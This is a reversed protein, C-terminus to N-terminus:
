HKLTNLTIASPSQGRRSAPPWISISVVRQVPLQLFAVQDIARSDLLADAAVADVDRPGPLKDFNLERRQRGNAIFDGCKHVLMAHEQHFRNDCALREYFQAARASTDELPPLAGLAALQKIQEFLQDVERAYKGMAPKNEFHQQDFDLLPSIRAMTATTPPPRIIMLHFILSEDVDDLHVLKARGAIQASEQRALQWSWKMRALKGCLEADLAPNGLAHCVAKSL